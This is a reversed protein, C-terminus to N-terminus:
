IAYNRCKSKMAKFIAEAENHQVIEVKFSYCDDFPVGVFTREISKLFVIFRDVEIKLNDMNIVRFRFKRDIPIKLVM